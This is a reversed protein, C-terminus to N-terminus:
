EDAEEYYAVPTRDKNDRFVKSKMSALTRESASIERSFREREILTIGPANQIVLQAMTTLTCDLIYLLQEMRQKHNM